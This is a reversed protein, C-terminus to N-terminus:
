LWGLITRIVTVVGVALSIVLFAVVVVVAVTAIHSQRPSSRKPSEWSQAVGTVQEARCRLNELRQSSERSPADAQSGAWRLARMM